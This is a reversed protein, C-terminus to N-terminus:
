ASAAFTEHNSEACNKQSHNSPVHSLRKEFNERRLLRQLDQERNSRDACLAYSRHLRAAPHQRHIEMRRDIQRVKM